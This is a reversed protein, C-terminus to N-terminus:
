IMYGMRPTEVSANTVIVAHEVAGAPLSYRDIAKPGRLM